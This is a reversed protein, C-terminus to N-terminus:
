NVGKEKMAQELQLGKLKLYHILAKNLLEEVPVNEFEALIQIKRMVDADIIETRHDNKDDNVDKSLIKTNSLLAAQIEKISKSKHKAM